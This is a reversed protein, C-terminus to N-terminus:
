SGTRMTINPPGSVAIFLKFCWHARSVIIADRFLAVDPVMIIFKSLLTRYCHRVGLLGAENNNDHGESNRLIIPLKQVGRWACEKAL